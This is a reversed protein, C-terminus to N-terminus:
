FCTAYLRIVLQEGLTVSTQPSLPMVSGCALTVIEIAGGLTAAAILGTSYGGQKRGPQGSRSKVPAMCASVTTIPSSLKHLLGLLLLKGAGRGSLNSQRLSKDAKKDFAASIPLFSGIQLANESSRSRPSSTPKPDQSDNGSRSESTPVNWQWIQLDSFIKCTESLCEM